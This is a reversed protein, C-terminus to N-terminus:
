KTRLYAITAGGGGEGEGASEFKEIFEKHSSLYERVIRALVGSGFGHIIRVRAYHNVLCEDLYKELVHKAEEARMGILNCELPLSSYYIKQDLSPLSNDKKEKKKPPTKRVLLNKEVKMKRGGKEGLYVSDGQMSLIEGELFLSPAEVYDGIQFATDSPLSLTEEEASEEMKKKIAIVEHLKKGDNAQKLLSSLKEEYEELLRKQKRKLDEKFDKEKLNLSAEKSRLVREKEELEKQLLAAEKEKEEAKFTEEELKKLALAVSKEKKGELVEKAQEIVKEPLGYRRAVFLGYSEGPVGMRLHYTPSFTHTDFAMSANSAGPSSLAFAKLGEYHSSVLAFCSSSLLYSIVGEGIAEGEEPSTGSGLEDLLVLDNGTLHALIEGVKKMHASFTSLNESLSQDDGIDVYVHEFFPLKAGEKAPLPLACLFMYACIGVTKLAVTKGGANPGSLLIFPHEKDFSFDNAVVNKIALLPHRAGPLFLTKDKALAPCSGAFTEKLTCKAFLFDFYAVASNLEELEDKVEYVKSTLERLIKREEEKIEERLESMRAEMQLLSEPEIFLTGGTQSIGQVFGKVKSKYANQVPLVYHGNRLTLSSSALYDSYRLLLSEAEKRLGKELHLFSRRLSALRSSASDKIEGDESISRELVNKLFPFDLLFSTKEKLLPINSEEEKKLFKKIEEGNIMEQYLAFLESPSATGGKQSLSLLPRLDKSPLLPLSGFKTFFSDAEALADLERELDREKSFPSLHLALEKAREGKCCAALKERILPFELITASDKM